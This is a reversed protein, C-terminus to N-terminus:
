LESLHKNLKEIYVNEPLPGPLREIEAGNKYIVVTPVSKVNQATKISPFREVDLRFVKVKNRYIDSISSIAPMLLASPGCWEAFFLVLSVGKGRMVQDRFTKEKRVCHFYRSYKGGGDDSLAVLGLWSFMIGMFAGYTGALFPNSILFCRGIFCKGYHSLLAGAICGLLAGAILQWRM